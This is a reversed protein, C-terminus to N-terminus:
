QITVTEAAAAAQRDIEEQPVFGLLFQSCVVVSPRVREPERAILRDAIWEPLKKYRIGELPTPFSFEFAEATLPEGPRMVFAAIEYYFLGAPPADPKQGVIPIRGSPPFPLRNRSV